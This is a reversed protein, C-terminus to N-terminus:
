SPLARQACEAAYPAIQRLESEDLPIEDTVM